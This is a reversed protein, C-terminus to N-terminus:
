VQSSEHAWLSVPLIVLPCQLEMVQLMIDGYSLCLWYTCSRQALMCRPGMERIDHYALCDAYRDLRGCHSTWMEKFRYHFSSWDMVSDTSLGRKWSLCSVVNECKKIWCPWLPPCFLYFFFTKSMLTECICDWLKDTCLLMCKGCTWLHEVLCSCFFVFLVPLFLILFPWRLQSYFWLNGGNVM